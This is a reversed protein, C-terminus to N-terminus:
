KLKEIDKTDKSIRSIRTDVHQESTLYIVNCINEMGSWIGSWFKDCRKTTFFGENTFSNYEFVNMVNKLNLM